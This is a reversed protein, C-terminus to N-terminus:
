LATCRARPEGGCLLVMGQTAGEGSYCGGSYCGGWLLMRRPTAGLRLLVRDLAAGVESYCGGWHLVWWLLLCGM